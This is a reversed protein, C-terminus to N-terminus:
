RFQVEGLQVDTIQICIAKQTSELPVAVLWFDNGALIAVLRGIQELYPLGQKTTLASSM